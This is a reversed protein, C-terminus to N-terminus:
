SEPTGPEDPEVAPGGNQERARRRQEEARLRLGALFVEDDDPNTPVHRGPRDYEPFKTAAGRPQRSAGVRNWNKGAILWLIAGIDFLLIVLFVWVLKPLNRQDGDPTMIVDVVCFIWLGLILLGVFGDLELV